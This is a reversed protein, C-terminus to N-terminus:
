NKISRQTFLDLPMHPGSFEIRPKRIECHRLKDHRRLTRPFTLFLTPAKKKWSFPLYRAPEELSSAINVLTKLSIPMRLWAFPSRLGMGKGLPDKDHSYVVSLPAPDIPFRLTIPLGLVRGTLLRSSASGFLELIFYGCAHPM